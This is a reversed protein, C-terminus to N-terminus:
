KGLLEKGAQAGRLILSPTKTIRHYPVQEAGFSRFFREIPEVMSGEFDFKLGHSTAYEIGKWMLLSMAGENKVSPDVAGILYTCTWKDLTLYLGGHTVGGEDVAYLIRRQDNSNLVSDIAKFYSHDYPLSIGKSRYDKIKLGHLTDIDESWQLDLKKEAKRIARRINGRLADFRKDRDSRDALVYSYRVSERFGKWYFPLWNTFRPHCDIVLDDFPPLQEILEDLVKKEYGYRQSTKQDPPYLIWPGLYPTLPPITIKRFGFKRKIFYVLFGKPDWPDGAFRIGWNREPAIGAIWDYRLFLPIDPERKCLERFAEKSM